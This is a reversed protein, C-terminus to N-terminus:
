RVLSNLGTFGLLPWDLRTFARWFFFEAERGAGSNAAHRVPVSAKPRYCVSFNSTSRAPVLVFSNCVRFDGNSIGICIAEETEGPLFSAIAGSKKRPNVSDEKPPAASSARALTRYTPAFLETLINM